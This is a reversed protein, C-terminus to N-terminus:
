LKEKDDAKDHIIVKHGQSGLQLKRLQLYRLDSTEEMKVGDMVLYYIKSSHKLWSM